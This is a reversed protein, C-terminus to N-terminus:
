AAARGAAGYTVGDVIFRGGRIEIPDVQVHKGDVRVVAFGQQWNATGGRLYQARRMDMLNGVEVGWLQRTITGGYGESHGLKGMRHTHGMIVSKGFKKAANLATNGPIRNLSIGGRHGHTTLWGPAVDYFDPLVEIEFAKFDLLNGFDFPRDPHGTLAPSYKDAYVRPREDHNGEHVKVPGDYVARLPGLFHRKAYECDEYVSGEFEGRTDKNWRSPQPFDMLDGIHVVEDPRSDSIYHLLSRVAKGDEYPIQTDSIVVKTTSL